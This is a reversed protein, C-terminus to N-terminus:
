RAGPTAPRAPPAAPAPSPAAAPAQPRPAQPRPAAPTTPRGAPPQGGAPASQQMRQVFEISDRPALIRFNGFAPENNSLLINIFNDLSMVEIKTTSAQTPNQKRSQELISQADQQSLFFPITQVKKDQGNEKVTGEFSLFGRTKSDMVYFLPATPNFPKGDKTTLQGGKDVLEGQQRLMSIAANLQDSGPLIQMAISPNPKKANEMALQVARSLPVPSIRAVKGVDPQKARLADLVTQADQQRVYFNYLEVKKTKDQPNPIMDVLPAGEQNTIMFLPVSSLIQLVQQEPLAQASMQRGMAPYVLSASAIGLVAVWRSLLKMNVGFFSFCSTLNDWSVGTTKKHDSLNRPV